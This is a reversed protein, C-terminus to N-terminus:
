HATYAISPQWSVIALPDNNANPYVMFRFVDGATVAINDIALNYGTQDSGGINETWERTCLGSICHSWHVTVGSGGITDMMVRGRISITGTSPATWDMGNADSTSSPAQVSLLSIYGGLSSTWVGAAGNVGATYTPMNTWATGNYSAYNWGGEGQSGSSSSLGNDGNNVWDQAYNYVSGSAVNIENTISFSVPDVSESSNAFFLGSAQYSIDDTSSGTLTDSSSGDTNLAVISAPTGANWTTGDGYFTNSQFNTNTSYDGSRDALQLIEVGPGYTDGVYNGWFNNNSDYAEFDFGTQDASGSNPVDDIYNNAWTVSTAHHTINASKGGSSYLNADDYMYNDLVWGNTVGYVFTARGTAGWLYNDRITVNQWSYQDWSTPEGNVGQSLDICQWSGSVNNGVINIGKLTWQSSSPVENPNGNFYIGISSTGSLGHIYNNAVTIGQNMFVGEGYAFEIGYQADDINLNSITWYSANNILFVIEGSGNNGNILPQNSSTCSGGSPAYSTMTIPSGPSGSGVPTVDGNANFAPTWSSGCALNITDGALFTKGNVNTFDCWPTSTSTGNGGNSCSSNSIYYNTAHAQPALALFVFATVAALLAALKGDFSFLRHM